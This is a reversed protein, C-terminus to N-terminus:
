PNAIFKVKEENEVKIQLLALAYLFLPAIIRTASHNITLLWFIFFPLLYFNRLNNFYLQLPYFILILLCFVGLVGHESLLRTIETHTRLDKHYELKRIDKGKGVGVGFIPNEAFNRIDSEVQMYRGRSKVIDKTELNTYRKFLKNGTQYATLTFISLLTFLLFGFRVKLKYFGGRSIYISLFLVLVAIVGTLIGGRSFTLLGRYFILCFIIINLYFIKKNGSEIIIKLLYIFVGLGLVTALQNPGYNGSFYFNSKYASINYVSQSYRLILYVCSAVIPLAIVSLINTIERASIKRKYTYLALVGMCIPGLIEFSIKRRIEGDLYLLSIFVSPLLLVLYIWYPNKIKPFGNYFFGLFTFLLMLYKGIEHVPDANTTRFFVESGAIYAIVYLIENNKNKNKVVFYLGTLVILLLYIKSLPSYFAILCGIGIHLVTLKIQQEAKM